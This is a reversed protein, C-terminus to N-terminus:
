LKDKYRKLDEKLKPFLPNPLNDLTFWGIEDHKEPENNIVEDRNVLVKYWFIIWHTPMNEHKRFEESFGLFELNMPRTGYEESVERKVCDDLGEGVDLAGGGFDWVGKEDRCKNNRKNMVYSDNGDHCYFVVAVGTYDIGKKMDFITVCFLCPDFVGTM